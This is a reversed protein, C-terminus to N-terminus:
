PLLKYTDFLHIFPSAAAGPSYNIQGIKSPAINIGCVSSDYIIPEIWMYTAESTM